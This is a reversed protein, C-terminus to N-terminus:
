RRRPMLCTSRRCKCLPCRDNRRVLRISTSPVGAGSLAVTPGSGAPSQGDTCAHRGWLARTGGTAPRTCQSTRTLARLPYVASNGPGLTLACRDRKAWRIRRRVGVGDGSNEGADEIANGTAGSAARVLRRARVRRVDLVGVVCSTECM